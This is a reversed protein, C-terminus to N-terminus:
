IYTVYRNVLFVSFCYVFIHRRVESAVDIDPPFMPFCFQLLFTVSNEFKNERGPILHFVLPWHFCLMNSFDNWFMCHHLYGNNALGAPDQKLNEKIEICYFM